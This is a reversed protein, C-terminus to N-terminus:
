RRGWRKFAGSLLDFIATVAQDANMTLAIPSTTDELAGSWGVFESDEDPTATLTVVTNM